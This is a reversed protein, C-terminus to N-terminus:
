RRVAGAERRAAIWQPDAVPVEVLTREVWEEIVVQPREQRVMLSLVDFNPRMSLCVSRGFHECLYDRVRYAMFSDHFVLLRGGAGPREAAVPRTSPSWRPWAYSSDLALPVPRAQLERRPLLQDCERSVGHWGALAGLDSMGTGKVVRFDEFRLPVIAPFQRKLWACIEQYAVLAGRDNWHTDLPFYVEGSQSAQRLAGRLDLIEVKSHRRLHAVLQDLRTQAAPRHFRGPLRDSYISEKNPAVVFLYAIGRQALWAQKGELVDQWAQLQAPTLGDLGQYDELVRDGIFFLWDDGGVAVQDTHYVGLAQVQILDHALILENRLGFHDSYYRDFKTTLDSLPDVGIRPPPALARNEALDTGARSRLLGAALPLWLLGLFVALHVRDGLRAIRSAGTSPGQDSM